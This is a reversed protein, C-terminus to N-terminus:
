QAQVPEPRENEFPSFMYDNLHADVAYAKECESHMYWDQWDGEFMGKYHYAPIGADIGQGCWACRHKTRTRLTKGEGFDAM